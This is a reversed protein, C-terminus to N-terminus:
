VFNLCPVEKICFKYPKEYLNLCPAEKFCIKYSKEYVM